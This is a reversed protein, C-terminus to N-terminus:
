EGSAVVPNGKVFPFVGNPRFSILNKLNEGVLPHERHDDYWRRAARVMESCFLELDIMAAWKEGAKISFPTCREERRPRLLCYM